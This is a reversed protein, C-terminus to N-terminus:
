RGEMKSPMYLAPSCLYPLQEAQPVLSSENKRTCSQGTFEGSETEKPSTLFVLEGGKPLGSFRIGRDAGKGEVEPFIDWRVVTSDSLELGKEGVTMRGKFSLWGLHIRSDSSLTTGKRCFLLQRRTEFVSLCFPFRVTDAGAIAVHHGKVPPAGWDANSNDIKSWEIINQNPLAPARATGRVGHVASHVTRMGPEHPSPGAM